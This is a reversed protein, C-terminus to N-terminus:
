NKITSRYQAIIIVHIEFTGDNKQYPLKNILIIKFNNTDLMEILEKEQYYYVFLSTMGDSSSEIRSQTYPGEIASIYLIGNENILNGVDRTLKFSEDRSLYPLCFGIMVADYKNQISDLLRCEMVKFLVGPNNQIALSIMNPSADIADIRSDPRKTRLYKTINGPGCGIEFISPNNKPILDCFLDYSDNYMTLDKFRDQYKQALQDWGLVNNQSRDM